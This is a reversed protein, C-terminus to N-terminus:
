GILLKAQPYRIADDGDDRHLLVCSLTLIGVRGSYMAFILLLRSALGLTPTLSLSLGVTCYASFCEYLAAEMSVGDWLVLCLASLFIATLLIFLICLARSVTEPPITRKMVRVERTGLLTAWVSVLMVGVTGVKAGGATSGS